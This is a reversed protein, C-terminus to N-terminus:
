QEELSATVRNREGSVVRISSSWRRYGDREIRIVHTGAAVRTVGLPTTGVPKGDLFVRAGSPRSDVALEGVFGEDAPQQRAAPARATLPANQPAERDLTVILSESPRSPSIAIRRTETLYGEREIRVRHPGRSLDRITAPTRGRERDDVFV